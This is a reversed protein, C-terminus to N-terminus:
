TVSKDPSRPLLNKNEVMDFVKRTPATSFALQANELSTTCAIQAHMGGAAEARGSEDSGARPRNFAVRANM